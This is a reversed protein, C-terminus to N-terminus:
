KPYFHVQPHNYVFIKYIWGRVDSFYDDVHLNRGVEIQHFHVANLYNGNVEVLLQHYFHTAAMAM